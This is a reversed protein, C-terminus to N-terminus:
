KGTNSRHTWLRDKLASILTAKERAKALNKEFLERLLQREELSLESYLQTTVGKLVAEYEWWRKISYLYRAILAGIVVGLFIGIHPLAIAVQYVISGLAGILAFTLYM